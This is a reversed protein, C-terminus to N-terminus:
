ETEGYVEKCIENAAPSEPPPAILSCVVRTSELAFLEIEDIDEHEQNGDVFAKLGIIYSSYDDNIFSDRLSSLVGLNAPNLILLLM